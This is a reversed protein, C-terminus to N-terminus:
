LNNRRKLMRNLSRKRGVRQTSKHLGEGSALRKGRYMASAQNRDRTPYKKIEFDLGGLTEMGFLRAENETKCGSALILYSKGSEDHTAIWFYFHTTM